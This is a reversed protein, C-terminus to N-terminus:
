QPDRIRSQSEIRKVARRHIGRSYLRERRKARQLAEVTEPDGLVGLARAASQRVLISEDDLLEVLVDRAANGGLIGLSSIAHSRPVIDSEYRAQDILAPIAEHAELRGLAAAASSRTGIDGARLLNILPQIAERAGLEGLHDAAIFRHEPDRLAELLLAVNGEQRASYLETL